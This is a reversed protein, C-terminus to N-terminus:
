KGKRKQRGFHEQDEKKDVDRGQLVEKEWCQAKKRRKMEESAFSRGLRTSSQRQIEVFIAANREGLRREENGKEGLKLPRQNHM